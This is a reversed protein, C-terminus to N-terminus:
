FQLFKKINDFINRGWQTAKLASCFDDNLIIMDSAEKAVMCGSEGMCIGVNSYKLAKIDNLGDATVGVIEGMQKLGAVLTLKDEPTSRALVKLKEAINYFNSKNKVEYIDKGDNDTFKNVGGVNKHFAKADMCVYQENAERETIIGAKIAQAKATAINDGSIMRVTIGGNRIKKIADAVGDRLDDKLSFTTLM